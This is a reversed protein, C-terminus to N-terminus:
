RGGRGDDARFALHYVRGDGKGDREARVRSVSGGTGSADPCTDGAGPGNGPEDQTIGTVTVAVPDGDPDTIGEVSVPALRHDPPWLEPPGAVAGRCDPPRNCEDPVGDRNADASQGCGIVERCLGA